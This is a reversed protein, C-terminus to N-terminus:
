VRFYYNEIMASTRGNRISTEDHLDRELKKVM